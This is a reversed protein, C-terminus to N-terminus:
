TKPDWDHEQNNNKDDKTNEKGKSDGDVSVADGEIVLKDEHWRLYVVHKEGKSADKSKAIELHEQLGECMAWIINCHAQFERLEAKEGEKASAEAEITLDSYPSALDKQPVLKYIGDAIPGKTDLTGQVEKKELEIKKIKDGMVKMTEKRAEEKDRLEACVNPM